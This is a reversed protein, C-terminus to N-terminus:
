KPMGFSDALAQVEAREPAAAAPPNRRAMAEAQLRRLHLRSSVRACLAATLDWGKTFERRTEPQIMQRVIADLDAASLGRAKWVVANAVVEAASRLVSAYCVCFRTVPRIFDAPLAEFPNATRDGAAAMAASARVVLQSDSVPM